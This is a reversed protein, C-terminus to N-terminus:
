EFVGSFGGKLEFSLATPSVARSGGGKKKFEPVELGVFLVWRFLGSNLDPRRFQLKGAKVKTLGEAIM